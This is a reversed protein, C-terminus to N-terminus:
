ETIIRSLNSPPCYIVAGRAVGGYRRLRAALDPCVERMEDLGRALLKRTAEESRGTVVVGLPRTKVAQYWWVVGESAPLFTTPNDADGAEFQQRGAADFGAQRFVFVAAARRLEGLIAHAEPSVGGAVAARALEAIAAARSM